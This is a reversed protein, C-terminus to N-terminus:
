NNSTASDSGQAKRNGHRERAQQLMQDYAKQQDPTLVAKIKNQSDERVALMKAHRDKPSLSSDNRIAQMQQNRDTLIPLLQQQQDATLNLKKTMMRVQRNPDFQHAGQEQSPVAQAQSASAAPAQQEQPMAFMTLGSFALLAFCSIQKRM